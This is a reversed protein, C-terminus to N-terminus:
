PDCYAGPLTEIEESAMAKMDPDSLLERAQLLEEEAQVFEGFAAVVPDLESRERSLQRYQKMDNAIEPQALMADIEELRRALQELRSKMSPKM